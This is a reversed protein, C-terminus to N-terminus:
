KNLNPAVFDIGSINSEIESYDYTYYNGKSNYHTQAISINKITGDANYTIKDVYAAHGWDSDAGCCNPQFIILSGVTPEKSVIYKDNKRANAPIQCANGLNDSQIFYDGGWRKHAIKKASTACQSYYYTNSALYNANFGNGSSSVTYSGDEYTTITPKFVGNAYQNALQEEPSLSEEPKEEEHPQEEQPEEAEPQEEEAPAEQESAAEPAPEETPAEEASSEEAPADSYDYDPPLADSDVAGDESYSTDDFIHIDALGTSLSNNIAEITDIFNITIEQAIFTYVDSFFDSTPLANTLGAIPTSVDGYDISEYAGTTAGTSGPRGKYTYQKIVINQGVDQLNANVVKGM